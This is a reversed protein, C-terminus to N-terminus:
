GESILSNIEGLFEKEEKKPNKSRLLKIREAIFIKNDNQPWDRLRDLLDRFDKEHALFTPKVESLIELVTQLTQKDKDQKLM